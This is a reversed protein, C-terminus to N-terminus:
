GGSWQSLVIDDAVLNELDATTIGYKGLSIDTSQPSHTTSTATTKSMRSLPYRSAPTKPPGMVPTPTKPPPMTKPPPIMKPPPMLSKDNKIQAPRPPSKTNAVVTQQQAAQVSNELDMLDDDDFAEDSNWSPISRFSNSRKSKNQHTASTECAVGSLEREIQTSSDLFEAWDHIATTEEEISGKPNNNESPKSVQDVDLMFTEDVDEQEWPEEEAVIAPKSVAARSKFFNGLHLQSSKYGFKDLRLQSGLIAAAKEESKQGADQEAKKKM